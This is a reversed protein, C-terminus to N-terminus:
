ADVGVTMSKLQSASLDGGTYIGELFGESYIGIGSYNGTPSAFNDIAEFTLDSTEVGQIQIKDNADLSHIVDLKSGDTNNGAKGYLWNWISTARLRFRISKVTKKVLLFITVLDVSCHTAVMGGTIVDRGHGAKVLDNGDGGSLVDGGQRGM